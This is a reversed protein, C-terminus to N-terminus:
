INIALHSVIIIINNYCIHISDVLITFISHQLFFYYIANIYYVHYIYIRNTM